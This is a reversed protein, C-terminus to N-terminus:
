EVEVSVSIGKRTFLWMRIDEALREEDVKTLDASASVFEFKANNLKIM